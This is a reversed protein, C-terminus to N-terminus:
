YPFYGGCIRDIGNLDKKSIINIFNNNKMIHYVDKSQNFGHEVWIMSGPKLFKVSESIITYFASLGDLGGILAINPEFRLDGINLHTDNNSIYPPNSLILDFKQNYISKFWDSCLFKIDVNFNKANKKAVNLAKESIDCAWIEADPRNIAISIAIIGSGTGLDLIKPNNMNSIFELSTDVLLETDPRPILVDSNILFNHGYFERSGIIYSIPEGNLRKQLLKYYPDAKIFMEDAHAIIWSKPKKLLYELLILRESFPIKNEKLLNKLLM